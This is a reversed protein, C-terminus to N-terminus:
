PYVLLVQRQWIEDASRYSEEIQIEYVRGFAGVGGELEDNRIFPLVTDDSLVRPLISESFFPAKFAWQQDFFEHAAPGPLIQELKNLVLPLKLDPSLDQLDDGSIFGIFSGPEKILILIAVTMYADHKQFYQVATELQPSAVDSHQLANRVAEATILDKVASHPFFYQGQTNRCRVALLKMRLESLTSAMTEQFATTPGSTSHRVSV